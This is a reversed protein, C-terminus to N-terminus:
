KSGPWFWVNSAPMVIGDFLQMVSNHVAVCAAVVEEARPLATEETEGISALFHERSPLTMMGARVVGRVITTHIPALAEEYASSAAERLTLAAAADASDGEQKSASVLREFLLQIFRIASTLRHLNRTTSNKVTATNAAKDAAVVDRLSPKTPVQQKITDLKGQFESRAVFFVPGLHDFFPLIKDCCAVFDETSINPASKSTQRLSVALAVLSSCRLEQTDAATVTM